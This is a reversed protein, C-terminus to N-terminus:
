VSLLLMVSSLLIVCSLGEKPDLLMSCSEGAMGNLEAPKERAEESSDTEEDSLSSSSSSSSLILPVINYSLKFQVM